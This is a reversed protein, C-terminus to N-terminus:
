RKKGPLSLSHRVKIKNGEKWRSRRAHEHLKMDSSKIITEPTGPIDGMQSFIYISISVPRHSDPPAFIIPTKRMFMNTDLSNEVLAEFRLSQINRHFTALKFIVQKNLVINYKSNLTGKFQSIQILYLSACLQYKLIACSHKQIGELPRPEKSHSHPWVWHPKQKCFTHSKSIAIM